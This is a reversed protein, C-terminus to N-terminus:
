GLYNLTDYILAIRVFEALSEVRPALQDAHNEALKRVSGRDAVDAVAQPGGRSVEVM